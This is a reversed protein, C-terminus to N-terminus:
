VSLDLKLSTQTNQKIESIISSIDDKFNANDINKILVEQSVKLSISLNKMEKEMASFYEEASVFREAELGKKLKSELKIQKELAEKNRKAEETLKEFITKEADPKPKEGEITKKAYQIIEQKSHLEGLSLYGDMNVDAKLTKNLEKEISNQLPADYHKNYPLYSAVSEISVYNVNTSFKTNEGGIFFNGQTGYGALTNTKEKDDLLGNKDSDALAYGRKYAIDGFWGSVFKEAEGSIIIEGNANKSFNETGFTLKLKELNEDSLKINITNNSILDKFSVENNYEYTKSLNSRVKIADVELNKKIVKGFQTLSDQNLNGLSSFIDKSQAGNFDFKTGNFTFNAKVLGFHFPNFNRTDAGFGYEM